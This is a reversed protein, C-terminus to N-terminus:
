FLFFCFMLFKMPFINQLSSFSLICLYNWDLFNHIALPFFYLLLFFVSQIFFILFHTFFPTVLLAWRSSANSSPKGIARYNFPRLAFPLSYGTTRFYRLIIPAPLCFHMTVPELLKKLSFLASLASTIIVGRRGYWM